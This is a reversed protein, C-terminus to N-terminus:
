AGIPATCPRQGPSRALTALQGDARVAFVVADPEVRPKEPMLRVSDPVLLLWITILAGAVDDSTAVPMTDRDVLPDVIEIPTGALEDIDIETIVLPQEKEFAVAAKTKM